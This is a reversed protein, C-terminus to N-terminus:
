IQQGCYTLNHCRQWKHSLLFMLQLNVNSHIFTFQQGRYGVHTFGPILNAHLDADKQDNQHLDLYQDLDDFYFNWELNCKLSAWGCCQVCSDRVFVYNQILIYVRAQTIGKEQKSLEAFPGCFQAQFAESAQSLILKHAKVQGEVNGADDLILFVVDHLAHGVGSGESMEKHLKAMDIGKRPLM